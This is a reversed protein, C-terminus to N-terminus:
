GRCGTAHAPWSPPVVTHSVCAGHWNHGYRWHTSHSPFPFPLHIAPIENDINKTRERWLTSSIFTYYSHILFPHAMLSWPVVATQSVNDAAMELSSAFNLSLILKLRPLVRRLLVTSSSLKGHFFVLFLLIIRILFYSTLCICTMTRWAPPVRVKNGICYNGESIIIILHKKLNSKFSLKSAQVSHQEKYVCTKEKMM